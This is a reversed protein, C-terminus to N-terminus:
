AMVTRILHSLWCVSVNVTIGPLCVCVCSHSREHRVSEGAVSTECTSLQLTSIGHRLGLQLFSEPRVTSVSVSFNDSLFIGLKNQHQQKHVLNQSRSTSASYLINQEIHTRATVKERKKDDDRWCVAIRLMRVKQMSSLCRFRPLQTMTLWESGPHSGPRLQLSNECLCRETITLYYGNVALESLMQVQHWKQLYPAEM